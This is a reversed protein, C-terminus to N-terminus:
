CVKAVIVTMDDNNVGYNGDVAEQLIIDAIRQPKNSGISQLLEKIWIERNENSELVGDSVFVIYNDRNLKKKLVNIEMNAMAGIPLASSSIIEINGDQRIFTPCAGLKILEINADNPNFIAIDLTSYNDKNEGLMIYSNILGIAVKKDLGANLYKSILELVKKSSKSAKEGSGMGDSLGLIIQGNKLRSYETTDGSVSSGKKKTRAMGVELRYGAGLLNNTVTKDVGIEKQMTNIAESVGRLQNAVLKKNEDMKGQWEKNLKYIEYSFNLGEALSVKNECISGDIDEPSINNNKRLIEVGNFVAEYMAHYNENWCKKYNKCKKCTNENLTKIFAGIGDEQEESNTEVNSAMDEAVESVAKLKFITSEVLLGIPNKTELANDMEFLDDIFHSIRKPMFFMVISAIVIEGIPIIIETSANIFYVWLANGIIFGIIAGIKGFRSFIGALLGCVAYTAVTSANAIGMLGLVLSISVGSVVGVTAGRRWGLMLVILVCIISRLSLGLISFDGIASIIIALLIGSAMLTEHSDIKRDKFDLIVPLGESFVLYFIATTVSMFAAMVADYVLTETFLLIITESIAASFLIKSANGTKTDGRIFSKMLVFVISSILFKAFCTWGFTVGTSIAILGLPVILPYNVDVIAGILALGFPTAGSSLKCTGILISLIYIIISKLSFFKKVDLRKENEVESEYLNRKNRIEQYM